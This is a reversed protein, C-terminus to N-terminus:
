VVTTHALGHDNSKSITERTNFDCSAPSITIVNMDSFGNERHPPPVVLLSTETGDAPVPM